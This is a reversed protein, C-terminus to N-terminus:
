PQWTGKSGTPGFVSTAEHAYYGITNTQSTADVIHTSLYDRVPELQPTVALSAIFSQRAVMALGGEM